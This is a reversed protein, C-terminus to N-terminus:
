EENAARWAKLYDEKMSMDQDFRERKEKLYGKFAISGAGLFLPFGIFAAWLPPTEVIPTPDYIPVVYLSVLALGVATIIMTLMRLYPRADIFNFLQNYAKM